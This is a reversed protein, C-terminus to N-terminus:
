DAYVVARTRAHARLVASTPRKSRHRLRNMIETAVKKRPFEVFHEEIYQIDPPGIARPDRPYQTILYEM